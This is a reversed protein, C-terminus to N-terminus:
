EVASATLLQLGGQWNAGRETEGACVGGLCVLRGRESKGFVWVEGRLGKIFVCM